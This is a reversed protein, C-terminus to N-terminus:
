KKSWTQIIHKAWYVLGGCLVLGLVVGETSVSSILAPGLIILYLALSIFFLPKISFFKSISKM